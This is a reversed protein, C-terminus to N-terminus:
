VNKKILKRFLSRPRVCGKRRGEDCFLDAVDSFGRKNAISLPTDGSSNSISPDASHELLWRCIRQKGENAALLLATAGHQFILQEQLARPGINCWLLVKIVIPFWWPSLKVRRNINFRQDPTRQASQQSAIHAVYEILETSSNPSSSCLNCFVDHGIGTAGTTIDARCEVLLSLYDFNVDGSHLSWVTVPTIQINIGFTDGSKANVDWKPFRSLVWHAGLKAPSRNMSALSLTDYRGAPRPDAKYALLLDLCACHDETMALHAIHGLITTGRGFGLVACTECLPAEVDVGKDLLQKVVAVNGAMCAYRLPTWGGDNFWVSPLHYEHCFAEVDSNHHCGTLVSTDPLLGSLWSARMALFMRAVRLNGKQGEIRSRREILAKLVPFLVIKDCEYTQGSPLHFKHHLKCCSFQGDAVRMNAVYSCPGFFIELSSRVFVVPTPQAKLLTVLVEFRCWGRNAWSYIDCLHSEDRGDRYDLHDMTPVLVFTYTSQEVYAAISRIALMRASANHEEQPISFYDYWVLANRLLAPWRTEVTDAMLQASLVWNSRVHAGSLLRRLSAQLVALQEGHPDPHVTSLWQHSVFIVVNESDFKHQVLQGRKCLVEHREVSTMNLVEEMPVCWMPYLQDPFFESPGPEIAHPRRVADLKEAVLDRFHLGDDRLFSDM